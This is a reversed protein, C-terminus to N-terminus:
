PMGFTGGVLVGWVDDRVRQVLSIAEIVDEHCKLGVTQALYRKPPYILNINGVMLARQPIGLKARLYGTRRIRFLSTDM